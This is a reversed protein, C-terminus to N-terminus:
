KATKLYAELQEMTGGWGQTMSDHGADFTKHEEATANHPSWRVTFKTKGGAHRRVHLDVANAAALDASM